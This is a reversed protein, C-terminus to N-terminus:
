SGALPRVQIEFPVSRTEVWSSYGGLWMAMEEWMPYEVTVDITGRIVGPGAGGARGIERLPVARVVEFRRPWTVRSLSWYPWWGQHRDNYLLVPYFLGRPGSATSRLPDLYFQVRVIRVNAHWASVVVRVPVDEDLAASTPVGVAIAPSPWLLPVLGWYVILLVLLIFGAARTPAWRLM